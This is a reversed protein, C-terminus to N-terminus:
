RMAKRTVASERRPGDATPWRGGDHEARRAMTSPGEYDGGLAARASGASASPERPRNQGPALPVVTLGFAANFQPDQIWGALQNAKAFAAKLVPVAAGDFGGSCAAALPATGAIPVLGALRSPLRM